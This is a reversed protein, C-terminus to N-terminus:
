APAALPGSAVYYLAVWCPHVDSIDSADVYAVEAYCPYSLPHNIPALKRQLRLQQGYMLWDAASHIYTATAPVRIPLIM